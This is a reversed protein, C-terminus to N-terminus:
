ARSRRLVAKWQSETIPVVSLRPIRVLPSGEFAPDEKLEALTVPQELAEGPEVDVAVFRPDDAGPDPYPESAITGTGVVARVRGTHYYLFSDGAAAQRLHKAALNNRVGVWSAKGDRELDEYSYNSPEEKLLWRKAM